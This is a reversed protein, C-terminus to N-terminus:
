KNAEILEPTEFISGVVQFNHFEEKLFRISRGSYGYNNSTCPVIVCTCGQVDNPRLYHLTQNSSKIIDGLYLDVGNQNTIFQQSVYHPAPPSVFVVGLGKDIYGWEHFRIGDWARFKLHKNM